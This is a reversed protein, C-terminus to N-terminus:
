GGPIAPDQALTRRLGRILEDQEAKSLRAPAHLPKYFWPPMSGDQIVGLVNDAGEGQPKDWRSFNLAKRGGMVDSYILWSAPAIKSYARWKTLNSHCDGCAGMALDRTRATDWRIERTVPPNTHDRGYPVVQAVLILAGLVVAGRLLWKKM